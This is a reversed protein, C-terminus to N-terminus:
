KNLRLGPLVMLFRRGQTAVSFGGQRLEDALGMSQSPLRAVSRRQAGDRSAKRAIKASYRGQRKCDGHMYIIVAGSGDVVGEPLKNQISYEEGDGTFVTCSFPFTIPRACRTCSIGYM